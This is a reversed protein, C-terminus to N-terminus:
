KRDSYVILGYILVSTVVLGVGMLYSKNSIFNVGLGGLITSTIFKLFEHFIVTANKGQLVAHDKDAAHYKERYTELEDQTGKLSKQLTKITDAQLKFAATTKQESPSLGSKKKGNTKM